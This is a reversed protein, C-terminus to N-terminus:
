QYLTNLNLMYVGSAIFLLSLIIFYNWRDKYFLIGLVITSIPTILSILASILPNTSQLGTFGTWVAAFIILAMLVVYACSSKLQLRINLPLVSPKFLLGLSVMVFVVFEQITVSVMAPLSQKLGYWHLLSSVSFSLSMLSFLLLQRYSFGHKNDNKIQAIYCLFGVLILFTSLEYNELSIDEFVYLYSAIWFVILLNFVGLQFLTGKRLALVMCFLGLAGLVSASVVYICVSTSMSLFADFYFFYVFLAGIISTLFARSSMILWLNSVSLSHKWVLNNIAYLLSSLILFEM